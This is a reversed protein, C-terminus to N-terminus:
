IYEKLLNIIFNTAFLCIIGFYISIPLAPLATERWFMLLVVTLILGALIAIFCVITVIYGYGCAKAILVNFFIFDGLALVCGDNENSYENEECQEEIDDNKTEVMPAYRARYLSTFAISVFIIVVLIVGAITLSQFLTFKQIKKFLSGLVSTVNILSRILRFNKFQKEDYYGLNHVMIITFFMSIAVLNTNLFNLIKTLKQFGPVLLGFIYSAGFVNEELSSSSCSEEEYQDLLASSSNPSDSSSTSKDSSTTSENKEAENEENEGAIQEKFLELPQANMGLIYCVSAGPVTLTPFFKRFQNAGESGKLMRIAVYPITEFVSIDLSGLLEGLKAAYIYVILIGNKQQYETLADDVSGIFWEM